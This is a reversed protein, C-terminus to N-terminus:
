LKAVIGIGFKANEPADEKKLTIIPISVKKTNNKIIIASAIDQDGEACDSCLDPL